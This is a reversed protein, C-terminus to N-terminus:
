PWSTARTGCAAVPPSGGSRRPSAWCSCSPWGTGSREVGIRGATWWALLVVTAALGANIGSEWQDATVPGILAVLPMLLVAPLPAFPVYVHGDYYIVDNPGLASEIWVRGHLFADALYFFDGHGADFARNSLWYVVFAVFALAIGVVATRSPRPVSESSVPRGNCAIRAPPPRAAWGGLGVVVLSALGALPLALFSVAGIWGLALARRPRDAAYGDLVGAPLM